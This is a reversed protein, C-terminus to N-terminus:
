GRIGGFFPQNYDAGDVMVNSNIGKQGAFSLQNRKSEVQVTPLALAFDQFRRGNIPLDRIATSDIVRSAAPAVSVLTEGVEVTTTTAQVQLTIDASVTSGVNLVLGSVTSAAFGGAQAVIEYRGPDLLVARYQGAENTTLDRTFGTDQNRIKVAANPIVAQRADFVTGVIQGKNADAQGWACATLVWLVVACTSLKRM